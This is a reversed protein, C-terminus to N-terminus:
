TESEDEVIVAGTKPDINHKKCWAYYGDTKPLRKGIIELERRTM